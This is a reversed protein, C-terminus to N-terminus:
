IPIHMDKEKNSIHSTLFAKRKELTTVERMSEESSCM